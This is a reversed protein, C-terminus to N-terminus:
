WASSSYSRSVTNLRCVISMLPVGALMWCIEKLWLWSRLGTTRGSPVTMNARQSCTASRLRKVTNVTLGLPVLMNTGDPKVTFISFRNRDAVHEWRSFMIDGNPRVVPNRDHSQNFSIQTISQDSGNIDMTHLNFVPQREYEDLATYSQGLAQKASSTKQRNSSFVFGRGNPLYAPGVDDYSSSSTIRRFTGAAAGGTTMDYEWINWHDTCAKVGGITATNSSPCNMAFVLKKGDYSAEPDAVDGAGQTFAATVNHEPASPSSTDRIILDGGAQFSAATLPDLRVTNARKVYAVPVDGSVTTTDSGSCGALVVGALLACARAALARPHAAAAPRGPVAPHSVQRQGARRAGDHPLATSPTRKM